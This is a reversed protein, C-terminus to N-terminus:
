PAGPLANFNCSGFQSDLLKGVPSDGGIGGSLPGGILDGVLGPGQRQARRARHRRRGQGDGGAARLDDRAAVTGAPGGDLAALRREARDLGALLPLGGRAARQETMSKGELSEAGGPNYAGINFFRNAEGLSADLDPM